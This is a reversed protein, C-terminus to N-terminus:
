RYTSYMFYMYTSYMFYMYPLLSYSTQHPLLSDSSAALLIIHCCPTHHPLLSYSTAALLLIRGPADGPNQFLPDAGLSVCRVPRLTRPASGGKKMLFNDFKGLFYANKLTILEALNWVHYSYVITIFLSHNKVNLINM